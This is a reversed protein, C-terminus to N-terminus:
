ASHWSLMHCLPSMAGGNKLEASSVPSHDAERGPWKVGASIAGQVWQTPLQSPGLATVYVFIEQAAPFRVGATWGTDRRQVSQAIALLYIIATMILAARTSIHEATTDHELDLYVVCQGIHSKQIQCTQRYAHICVDKATHMVASFRQYYHYFHSINGTHLHTCLWSSTHTTSTSSYPNKFEVMLDLHTTLKM